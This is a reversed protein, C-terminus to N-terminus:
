AGGRRRSSEEEIVCADLCCGYAVRLAKLLFSAFPMADRLGSEGGACAKAMAEAYGEQMEGLIANLYMAAEPSCGTRCLLLMLVLRSMRANDRAFPALCVFDAAAWAALMVGDVGQLSAAANWARCLGELLSPVEAAPPLQVAEM